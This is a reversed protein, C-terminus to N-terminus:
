LSAITTKMKADTIHNRIAMPVIVATTKTTIANIAMMIAEAIAMIKEIVMTIETTITEEIVTMIEATTTIEETVTM